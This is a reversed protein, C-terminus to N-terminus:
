FPFIGTHHEYGLVVRPPLILLRVTTVAPHGEGSGAGMTISPLLVASNAMSRLLLPPIQM